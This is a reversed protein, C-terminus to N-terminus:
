AQTTSCWKRSSYLWEDAGSTNRAAALWRVDRMRSPWPIMCSVVLWGALATSRMEAEVQQRVSPDLEPHPLAGADGLEVGEAHAEPVLPLDPLVRHAAGDRHEALAADLVLAGVEVERQAVHQGLGALLRV